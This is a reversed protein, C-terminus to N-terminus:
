DREGSAQGLLRVKLEPTARLPQAFPETGTILSWPYRGNPYGSRDVETNFARENQM